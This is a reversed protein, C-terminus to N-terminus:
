CFIPTFYKKKNVGHMHKIYRQICTTFNLIFKNYHLQYIIHISTFTGCIQKWYQSGLVVKNQSLQTSNLFDTSHICLYLYLLCLYYYCFVSWARSLIKKIKSCFVFITCLVLVCEINGWRQIVTKRFSYTHLRM